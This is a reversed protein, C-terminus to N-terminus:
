LTAAVLAGAHDQAPTLPQPAEAAPTGLAELRGAPAAGGGVQVASWLADGHQLEVWWAQVVRDHTRLFTRREQPPSQPKKSLTSWSLSPPLSAPLFNISACPYLSTQHDHRHTRAHMLRHTDKLRM